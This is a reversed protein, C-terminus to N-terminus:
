KGPKNFVLQATINNLLELIKHSKLYDSAEDERNKTENM